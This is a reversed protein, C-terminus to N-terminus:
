NMRDKLSHSPKFSLVKRGAIELRKGTQPNRGARPAKVKVQFKGFGSLKVCEGHELTGKILEFVIEVLQGAEKKSLGSTDTVKQILDAKTM